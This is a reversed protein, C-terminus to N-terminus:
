ESDSSSNESVDSLVTDDAPISKYFDHCSAPLLPLLKMLDKKKKVSVPLPAPYLHKLHKQLNGAAYAGAKGARQFDLCGYGKDELAKKFFVKGPKNADYRLLPTALWVFKENVTSVTRRVLPGKLFSQFDYFEGKMETVQFRGNPYHTSSAGIRRVLNYWDSPVLIKDAHDKKREIVSHKSDVELRTHGVELFIHEITRISSHMQLLTLFMASLTSNRNQGLTSDSFLYIKKVNNPIEDLCHLFICSAIENSGRKGDVESWMYCHTTKSSTDYITLNYTGLQRLYFVAGSTLLPTELVQELDFVLVRVSPDNEAQIKCEKKFDYAAQARDLHANWEKQLSEQTAEDSALKLQEKWSDCKGCTDTHPKKFSRGLTNFIREYTSYSVYTGGAELYLQYMQRRDLHSPLYRTDGVEARKYHSKYSPFKLVHQKVEEVTEPKIKHRPAHKGRKEQKTVGSVTAKKKMVAFRLFSDTEGLTRLFTQKCVYKAEGHIHFVYKQSVSKPHAKKHDAPLRPRKTKIQCIEVRSAVYSVRKEHTGQEWYEHFISEAVDDTIIEHCLRRCVHPKEWKRAPVTKNKSSQYQQGTNRLYKRKSREEKSNVSSNLKKKRQKKQPVLHREEDSDDQMEALELNRKKSTHPATISSSSSSSESELVLSDESEIQFLSDDEEASSALDPSPKRSRRTRTSRIRQSSQSLEVGSELKQKSKKSLSSESDLVLGEESKKHLLEDDSLFLDRSPLRSTAPTKSPSQHLEVDSNKKKKTSDKLKSKISSCSKVAVEVNRESLGQKKRKEVLERHVSGSKLSSRSISSPSEDQLVAKDEAASPKSQVKCTSPTQCKPNSQHLEFDQVCKKKKESKKSIDSHSVLRDESKERHLSMDESDSLFMDPSPQRSSPTIHRCSASQSHEADLKTKKEASELQSFSQQLKDGCEVNRECKRDSRFISKNTFATNISKHVNSEKSEGQENINEKVTFLKATESKQGLLTSEPTSRPPSSCTKSVINSPQLIESVLGRAPGSRATDPEIRPPSRQYFNTLDKCVSKLPLYSSKSIFQGIDQLHNVACM